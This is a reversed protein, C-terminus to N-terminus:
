AGCAAQAAGHGIGFASYPPLESHPVEFACFKTALMRNTRIDRVKGAEIMVKYDLDVATLMRALRVRIGRPGLEKTRM